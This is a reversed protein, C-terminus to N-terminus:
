FPLRAIFGTLDQLNNVLIPNNTLLQRADSSVLVELIHRWNTPGVSFM